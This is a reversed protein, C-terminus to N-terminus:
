VCPQVKLARDQDARDPTAMINGRVGNASQIEMITGAAAATCELVEAMPAFRFRELLALLRGRFRSRFLGQHWATTRPISWGARQFARVEHLDMEYPHMYLVAPQGRRHAQAMALAPIAAPLLRLYGGGSVPWRRGMWSLTTLPFEILSGSRRRETASLASWDRWRFPFPPAGAIGYRRGAIPFVSSSYAFGHRALIPGAWLTRRTISFAPARYGRPVVGTQDTIVEVSRRLDAEFEAPTMRFLLDHGYGHSAIEHGASAIDPLLGPHRRCVKGLAFFTARVGQDDFLRLVRELNRVVRGTIPTRGGWLGQAWDELDVTLANVRPPRILRDVRERYGHGGRAALERACPSRPATKEASIM